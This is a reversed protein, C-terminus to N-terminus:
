VLQTTGDGELGRSKNDGGAAEPAIPGGAVIAVAAAGDDDNRKGGGEKKRRLLLRRRVTDLSVCWPADTSYKVTHKVSRAPLEMSHLHLHEISNFPAVHFCFCLEGTAGREKLLRRGVDLMHDLLPVDTPRLSDVTMKHLRPIVLIHQKAAIDLPHFAVVKGDEFLLEKGNPERGHAFECFLCRSVEGNEGLVVGKRQQRRDWASNSSSGHNGM